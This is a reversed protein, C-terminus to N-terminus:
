TGKAHVRSLLSATDRIYEHSKSLGRTPHNYHAFAHPVGAYRKMTVQNGAAKLMDGYYEGEDREVDFEATVIHAPALDKLCPSLVPTMRWDALIKSRIEPDTGIYYKLFWSERSLPSWPLDSCFIASPYPCTDLTLPRTENVSAPVYRMDTAPVVMLQLKLDIKPSSDRAFHALVATILGGSSLGGISVSTPDINLTQAEAIAWKVAAWCDYIAVPFPFEPALRYDVDIVVISSQNCISRCWAAESNLGGIVWGGGHFNLHVPFPGPGAPTYVRCTISGEPELVPVQHDEVHHVEPGSWTPYTFSYKAPHQRFEEVSILHAGVVAQSHNTWMDEWEPDLNQLYKEPIRNSQEQTMKGTVDGNTVETNVVVTSM